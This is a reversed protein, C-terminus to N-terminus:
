HRISLRRRFGRSLQILPNLDGRDAEELADIYVDRDDRHIVLPFWGVRLFVLSALTRAMRGNGDQFPHIQIFRHHLWAAEVEPTIEKSLHEQHLEILRDM